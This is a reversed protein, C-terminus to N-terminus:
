AAICSEVTIAVCESRLAYEVLSEKLSSDDQINETSILNLPDAHYEHANKMIIAWIDRHYQGYISITDEFYSLPFVDREAAFRYIQEDTFRVEIWQRFTM